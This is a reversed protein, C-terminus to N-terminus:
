KVILKITERSSGYDIRCFYIGNYRGSNKGVNWDVQHVGQTQYGDKLAAVKQGALNYVGIDVRTSAPVYYRITMNGDSPNPFATATGIVTEIDGIASPIPTGNIRIDDFRFNKGTLAMNEAVIQFADVAKWDFKGAPGYWTDNDYAGADYFNNLPIQVFHWNGDFAVISNRVTYDRRWPHDNDGTKTDLFRFVINVSPDDAKIWFDVTYGADVLLSLDKPRKFRFSASNYQALGTVHLAYDGDHRDASFLDVSGNSPLSPLLDPGAYDLYIDIPANEPQPVYKEGTTTPLTLALAEALAPNIDYEVMEESGKVFIGFSGRYGWMIWPIANEAFCSAVTQHWLRRDEEPAGVNYVGFEGCFFRINGKQPIIVKALHNIVNTLSTIQGTNVYDEYYNAFYTGALSAPLPPMRSPDYPFPVGVLATAPPTTFSAAQHTFLMPDYYHFSYLLNDDDLVALDKLGNIGGWDGGSVIITHVQDIARIAEVVKEQLPAWDTTNMIPENLVEYLVKTSRTRYHAAMQPWIKLLPEEVSEVTSSTSHNDLILNLGLEEAWDVAQDLFRYLLPDITYDPAGSTMRHLNIPLRIVDCGLNKIDQFDKKTFRNFAISQPNSSQFWESLNFGKTFPAQAFASSISLVFVLIYIYGSM